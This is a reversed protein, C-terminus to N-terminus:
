GVGSLSDSTLHQLVAVCSGNHRYELFRAQRALRTLCARDTAAETVGPAVWDV